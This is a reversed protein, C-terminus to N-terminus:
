ENPTTVLLPASEASQNGSSDLARVRYQQTTM